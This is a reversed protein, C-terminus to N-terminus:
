HSHTRAAATATMTPRATAPQPPPESGRDDEGVAGVVDTAADEEDDVSGEGVEEEEV